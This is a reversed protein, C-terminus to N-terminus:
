SRAAKLTAVHSRERMRRATGEFRSYFRTRAFFDEFSLTLTSPWTLNQVGSPPPLSWTRFNALRAPCPDEITGFAYYGVLTMLEPNLLRFSSSEM